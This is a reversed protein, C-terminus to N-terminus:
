WSPIPPPPHVTHYCFWCPTPNQSISLSLLFILIYSMSLHLNIASFSSGLVCLSPFHYCFFSSTPCLSISLTTVSGFFVHVPPTLVLLVYCLHCTCSSGEQFATTYYQWCNIIPLKRSVTLIQKSAKVYVGTTCQSTSDLLTKVM